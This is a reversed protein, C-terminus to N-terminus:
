TDKVKTKWLFWTNIRIVLGSFLDSCQNHRDKTTNTDTTEERHKQSKKCDWIEFAKGWNRICFPQWGDRDKSGWLRPSAGPAELVQPCARPKRCCLGVQLMLCLSFDKMNGTCEEAIAMEGTARSITSM